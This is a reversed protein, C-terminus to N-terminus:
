PLPPPETSDSSIDLYRHFDQYYEHGGAEYTIRVPGARYAGPAIAHLEGVLYWGPCLENGGGLCVQRFIVTNVPVTSALVGDPVSSVMRVGGQYPPALRVAGTRDVVLQKPVGLIEVRLLHIPPSKQRWGAEWLSYVLPTGVPVMAQGNAM